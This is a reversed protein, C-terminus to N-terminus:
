RRLNRYGIANHINFRRLLFVSRLNLFRDLRCRV